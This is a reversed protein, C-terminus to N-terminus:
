KIKFIFEPLEIVKYNPNFSLSKLIDDRDMTIRNNYNSIESYTDSTDSIQNSLVGVDIFDYSNVYVKIFKVRLKVDLDEYYSPEYYSLDYISVVGNSIFNDSEYTIKNFSQNSSSSINKPSVEDRVRQLSIVDPITSALESKFQDIFVDITYDIDSFETIRSILDIQGYEREMWEYYLEIFQIFNDYEDGDNDVSM